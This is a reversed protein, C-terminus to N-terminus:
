DEGEGLRQWLKRNYGDVEYALAKSLCVFALLGFASVLLFSDNMVVAVGVVFVASLITLQMSHNEDTKIESM